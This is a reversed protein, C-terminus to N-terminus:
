SMIGRMADLVKRAEDRERLVQDLRRKLDANERELVYRSATSADSLLSSLRRAQKPRNDGARGGPHAARAALPVMPSAVDFALPDKPIPEQLLSSGYFDYM